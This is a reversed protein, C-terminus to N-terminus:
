LSRWEGRFAEDRRKGERIHHICRVRARWWRYRRRHPVGEMRRVFRILERRIEKAKDRLTGGGQGSNEPFETLSRGRWPETYYCPGLIHLSFLFPSLFVLFLCRSARYVIRAPPILMKISDALELHRKEEIGCLTHVYICIYIQKRRFVVPSYAEM